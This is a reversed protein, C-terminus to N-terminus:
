FIIELVERVLFYTPNCVTEEKM